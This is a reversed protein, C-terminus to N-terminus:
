VLFYISQNVGSLKTRLVPLSADSLAVKGFRLAAERVCHLEEAMGMREAVCFCARRLPKELRLFERNL